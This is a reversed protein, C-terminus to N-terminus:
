CGMSVGFGDIDNSSLFSFGDIRDKSRDRCLINDTKLVSHWEGSNNMLFRSFKLLSRQKTVRRM